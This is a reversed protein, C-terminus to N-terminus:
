AILTIIHYCPSRIHRLSDFQLRLGYPPTWYKSLLPSDKSPLQSETTVTASDFESLVLDIDLASRHLKIGGDDFSDTGIATPDAYQHPVPTHRNAIRELVPTPIHLDDRLAPIKIITQIVNWAIAFKLSSVPFRQESEPSHFRVLVKARKAVTMLFRTLGADHKNAM